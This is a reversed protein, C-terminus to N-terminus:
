LCPLLVGGGGGFSTLAEDCWLIFANFGAHGVGGTHLLYVIFMSPALSVCVRGLWSPMRLNLFVFFFATGMALMEPADYDASAVLVNKVSPIIMAVGIRGVHVLACVVFLVLARSSTMIRDFEILRLFRGLVYIFLMTNFSHGFWGPVTTFFRLGGIPMWSIVMILAYLGVAMVLSRKSEQFLADLGANVLPALCMVAFYSWGFWGLDFSYTWRGTFPKSLLLLFISAYLGMGVFKTLRKWSFRIGFWGSVFMFSNTAFFLLWPFVKIEMYRGPVDFPGNNCGHYFVILFMLLCRMVEISPNRVSKM